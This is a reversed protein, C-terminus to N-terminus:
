MRAVILLQEGRNLKQKKHLNIFTFVVVIGVLVWIWDDIPVACNNDLPDSNDCPEGIDQAFLLLPFIFLHITLFIKRYM